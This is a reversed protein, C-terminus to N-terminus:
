EWIVSKRHPFYFIYLLQAYDTYWAIVHELNYCFRPAKWLLHLSVQYVIFSSIAVITSTERFLKNIIRVM